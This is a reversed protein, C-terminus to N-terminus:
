NVYCENVKEAIDLGDEYLNKLDEATIWNTIINNYYKDYKGLIDSSKDLSAASFEPTCNFGLRENFTTLRGDSLETYIEDEVDVSVYQSNIRKITLTGKNDVYDKDSIPSLEATISYVVFEGKYAKIIYDADNETIVYINDKVTINYGMDKLKDATAENIEKKFIYTNCSMLSLSLLLILVALMARKFNKM